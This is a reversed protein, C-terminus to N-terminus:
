SGISYTSEVQTYMKQFDEIASEMSVFHTIGDQDDFLWCVIMSPLDHDESIFYGFIRVAEYGAFTTKDGVLESVDDQELSYALMQAMQDLTIQSRQEETLGDLSFINLTLIATGAPNSYQLDTGGEIDLFRVWDAPLQVYGLADNGAMQFQESNIATITDADSQEPVTEMMELFNGEDDRIGDTESDSEPIIASEESSEQARQEGSEEQMSQSVATSVDKERSGTPNGCTTIMFCSVTVLIVSLFRKMDDEGIPRLTRAIGTMEYQFPCDM